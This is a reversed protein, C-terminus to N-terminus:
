NSYFFTKTLKLIKPNKVMNCIDESEPLNEWFFTFKNESFRVMPDYAGNHAFNRTIYDNKVVIRINKAKDKGTHHM